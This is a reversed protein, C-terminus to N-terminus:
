EGSRGSKNWQKYAWIFFATIMVINIVLGVAFFATLDKQEVEIVPAPQESHVALTSGASSSEATNTRGTDPGSMTTSHETPETNDTLRM